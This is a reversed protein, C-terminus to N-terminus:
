GTSGTPTCVKGGPLLCFSVGQMAGPSTCTCPCNGCPLFECGAQGTTVRKDARVQLSTLWAQGQIETRCQSSQRVSYKPSASGDQYGPTVAMICSAAGPHNCEHVPSLRSPAAAAAAPPVELGDVASCDVAGLPVTESLLRLSKYLGEGKCLPHSESLVGGKGDRGALCGPVSRTCPAGEVETPAGRRLPRCSDEWCVRQSNFTPSGAFLLKLQVVSPSYSDCGGRSLVSSAGSCVSGLAKCSRLPYSRLAKCRKTQLPLEPEQNPRVLLLLVGPNEELSQEVKVAHGPTLQQTGTGRNGKKNFPFVNKDPAETTHHGCTQLARESVQKFAFSQM